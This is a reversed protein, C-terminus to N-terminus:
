FSASASACNSTGTECVEYLYTQGSGKVGINDELTGDNATPSDPLPSGDRGIAVTSGTFNQWTLEVHQVGKVKFPTASVTRTGPPPASAVTIAVSATNSLDGDQDVIRYTFVDDGEFGPGPTYTFAGNVAVSLSGNAPLTNSDISAPGNGPDDNDMVNGSLPVDIGTQYTDSAATPAQDVDGQSVTISDGVANAAPDYIMGTKSLGTVTFTVSGTNSKLNTKEVTCDGDANTLCSSSGSAGSSWAGAVTVGPEANGDQDAATVQVAATWRGRSGPLASGSLGALHLTAAVPASETTFSWTAGQTTGDANAEDIRWFYTTAYALTGPDFTAGAQSGQFDGGGLPAGTGFYVEHSTALTGATWSLNSDIGLGAAGDAPSPDSAAGPPDGPPPEGGFVELEIDDVQWLNGQPDGLSDYRFRVM